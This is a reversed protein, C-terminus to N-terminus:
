PKKWRDTATIDAVRSAVWAHDTKSIEKKWFPATTKLTDMIFQTAEFAESRHGALTAVLVIEAGVDLTGFRHIILADDLNFRSVAERHLADLQKQAMAPFHELHLQTLKGITGFDRVYGSFACLAGIDTRSARFANIEAGTDFPDSQIRVNSAM